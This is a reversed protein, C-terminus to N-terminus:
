GSWAALLLGLDAGDVTGDGNLDAAPDASEWAALLLGLDAGNVVGDANIDAPDKPTLLFARPLGHHNGRGVIQGSDNIGLAHTLEWADGQPILSNLDNMMGNHWLFARWNSVGVVDGAENVAFAMSTGGGIEGLDLKTTVSGNPALTYRFAHPKGDPRDAAGVVFGSDSIARAFSKAGGLTGLDILGGGQWLFAHSATNSALQSDGVVRNQNNVGYATSNLGGLTGLDTLTGNNWVVAHGFAGATTASRTGVIVGSDNIATATWPGLNTLSEDDWRVAQPALHGLTFSIGVATSANNIALAMSHIEAGYVGLDVLNPDWRAGRLDRFPSNDVSLGCITGDENISYAQSGPGYTDGFGALTGLDTIVYSPTAAHLSAALSLGTAISITTFTKTM